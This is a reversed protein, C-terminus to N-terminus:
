FIIRTGLSLQTLIEVLQEFYPPPGTNGIYPGVANLEFTIARAKIPLSYGIRIAGVVITRKTYEDYFSSTYNDTTSHVALGGALLLGRNNSRFFNTEFLLAAIISKYKGNEFTGDTYNIEVKKPFYHLYSSLNIRKKLRYNIGIQGSPGVYYGEADMSVHLGFYPDWKTQSLATFPFSVTLIILIIKMFATPLGPQLKALM